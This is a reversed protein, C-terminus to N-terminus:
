HGPAPPGMTDGGPKIGAAKLAARIMTDLAKKTQPNVVLYKYADYLASYADTWKPLTPEMDTELTGPKILGKIMRDVDKRKAGVAKLAGANYAPTGPVTSSTSGGGPKKTQVPVGNVGIKWGDKVLSGTPDVHYGPLPTKGDPAYGQQAWVQRTERAQALAIYKNRAVKDGALFALKAQDMYWNRESELKQLSFKQNAFNTAAQQAKIKERLGPITQLLETVKDGSATEDALAKDIIGKMQLQAELGASKPLQSAAAAFAGGQTNLLTQPVWGALGALVGGADGGQVQQGEPANITGLVQNAAAAAEASQNNLVRGYGTGVAGMTNAADRYAGGIAPAIGQLQGEVATTFGALNQMLRTYYEGRKKREADYATIVPQVQSYIQGETPDFSKAAIRHQRSWKDYKKPGGIKKIFASLDNAGWERGGWRFTPAYQLDPSYMPNPAM